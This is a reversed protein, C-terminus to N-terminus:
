VHDETPNPTFYAAAEDLNEAGSLQHCFGLTVVLAKEPDALETALYGRLWYKAAASECVVVLADHLYVFRADGLQALISAWTKPNHAANPDTALLDAMTQIM